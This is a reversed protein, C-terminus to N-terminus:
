SQDAVIIRRLELDTFRKRVTRLLAGFVLASVGGCLMLPYYVGHPQELAMAVVGVILMVSGLIAVVTMFGVVFIRARGMSCLIGILAGLLGLVSGVAGGIMGGQRDTWWGGTALAANEGEAYQFLSPPEIWVKGKGPFALNIVLRTPRRATGTASFPLVIERWGSSGAIAALPGIEDLTRSFYAGGGPFHSWMELYGRGEVGQYRVRTRLAYSAQTIGPQEVTFLELTLPGAETSGVVLCEVNGEQGPPIVRGSKLKGAAELESWSFERVKEGARAAACVLCVVLIAALKKM